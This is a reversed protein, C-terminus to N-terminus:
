QYHQKNKEGKPRWFFGTKYKIRYYDMSTDIGSGTMNLRLGGRFKYASDSLHFVFTTDSKQRLYFVNALPIIVDGYSRLHQVALTHDNVEITSQEFSVKKDLCSLNKAQIIIDCVAMKKRVHYFFVRPRYEISDTVISTVEHRYTEVYPCGMILVICCIVLLYRIVKIM